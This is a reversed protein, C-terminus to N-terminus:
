PNILNVSIQLLLYFDGESVSDAISCLHAGHLTMCNKGTNFTSEQTLVTAYTFAAAALVHDFHALTTIMDGFAGDTRDTERGRGRCLFPRATEAVEGRVPFNFNLDFVDLDVRECSGLARTTLGSSSSSFIRPRCGCPQRGKNVPM